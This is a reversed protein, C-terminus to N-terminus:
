AAKTGLLIVRQETGPISDAVWAFGPLSTTAAAMERQSILLMLHKDAQAAAEPVARDMRDVARMAVLDFIRSADLEEVRGSHVRAGSLGLTRVAERLFAAKKTQSEALTVALDPRAIQIPIGPLGAGSGYDLVTTTDAPIMQAARLCEGLHLSALLRPDRVATLNMRSNWRNLLDLYDLLQQWVAQPLPELLLPTALKEIEPATLTM